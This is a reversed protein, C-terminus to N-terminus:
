PSYHQHLIYSLSPIMNICSGSMDGLSGGLLAGLLAGLLLDADLIKTSRLLNLRRLQHDAAKPTDLDLDLQLSDFM